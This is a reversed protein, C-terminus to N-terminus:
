NECIVLPIMKICALNPWRETWFWGIAEKVNLIFNLIMIMGVFDHAVKVKGERDDDKVVVGIEWNADDVSANGQNVAEFM